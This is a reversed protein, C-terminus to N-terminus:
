FSKGLWKVRIQTEHLIYDITYIRSINQLRAKHISLRKQSFYIIVFPMRYFLYDFIMGYSLM